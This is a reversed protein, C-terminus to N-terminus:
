SGLTHFRSTDLIQLCHMWPQLLWSRTRVGGGIRRGSSRRQHVKEDRVARGLRCALGELKVYRLQLKARMQRASVSRSRIVFAPYNRKVCSTICEAGLDGGIAQLTGTWSRRLRTQVARKGFSLALM